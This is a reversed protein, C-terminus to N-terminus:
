SWQNITIKELDAQLAAVKENATAKNHNQVSTSSSKQNQEVQAFPLEWIKRRFYNESRKFNSTQNLFSEM